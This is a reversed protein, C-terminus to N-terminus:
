DTMQAIGKTLIIVVAQRYLNDNRSHLIVHHDEQFSEEIEVAGIPKLSVVGLKNLRSM